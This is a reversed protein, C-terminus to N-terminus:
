RRRDQRYRYRGTPPPSDQRRSPLSTKIGAALGVAIAIFLPLAYGRPLSPGALGVLILAGVIGAVYPFARWALRGLLVLWLLTEM